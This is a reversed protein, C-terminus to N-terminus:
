STKDFHNKLGKLFNPTCNSEKIAEAILTKIEVRTYPNVKRIRFGNKNIIKKLLLTPSNGLSKKFSEICEKELQTPLEKFYLHKGAKAKEEVLIYLKAVREHMIQNESHNSFYSEYRTIAQRINGQSVDNETRQIIRSEYTKFSITVNNHKKLKQKIWHKICNM